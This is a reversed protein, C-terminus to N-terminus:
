VELPSRTQHSTTQKGLESALPEGCLVPREDGAPPAPGDASPAEGAEAGVEAEAEAEAGAPPPPPARVGGTATPRRSLELWVM